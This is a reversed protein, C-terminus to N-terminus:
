YVGRGLVPKFPTKDLSKNRPSLTFAPPDEEYLSPRKPPGPSFPFSLSFLLKDEDALKEVIDGMRSVKASSGDSSEHPDTVIREMWKEFESIPPRSRGGADGKSEDHSVVTGGVPHTETKFHTSRLHEVADYYDCYIKGTACPKCGSLPRVAKFASAIGVIAPDRCRWFKTSVFEDPANSVWADMDAYGMSKLGINKSDERETIGLDLGTESCESKEVAVKQCWESLNFLHTDEWTREGTVKFPLGRVPPPQTTLSPQQDIVLDPSVRSIRTDAFNEAEFTRSHIRSLYSTKRKVKIEDADELLRKPHRVLCGRELACLRQRHVKWEETCDESVTRCTGTVSIKESLKHSTPLEERRAAANGEPIQEFQLRFGQM